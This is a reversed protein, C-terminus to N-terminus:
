KQAPQAHVERIPGPVTWPVQLLPCCVLWVVVKCHNLLDPDRLFDTFAQTTQGAGHHPHVPINIEKGLLETLGLNYSDGILVVPSERSYFGGGEQRTIIACTRAHANEARPRQQPNLAAQAAQASFPSYPGEVIKYVPPSQRAAAVFDYRKLHEAIARAVCAQGLPAWHPDAPQYLPLPTRDRQALLCPLADVVEVDAELLELLVHRMQPAVIRDGPCHDAFHEPYIETMKPVPVFLLDIDKQKLWRACAVVPRDTRFATLCEPALLYQLYLQPACEFLPFGDKAELLASRAEFFGPATPNFPRTTQIRAALDGRYPALLAEWRLWDGGANRRCEEQLAQISQRISEARLM